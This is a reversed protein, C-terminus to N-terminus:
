KFIARFFHQFFCQASFFERAALSSFFGRWADGLSLGAFVASLFQKNKRPLNGMHYERGLLRIFEAISRLKDAECSRSLQLPGDSTIALLPEEVYVFKGSCERLIRIYFDIDSVWIFCSDFVTTLTHDFALVSPAGIFNGYVLRSPTDHLSQIQDFSAKHQRIITGQASMATCACFVVQAHKALIPESMQALSYESLFWDDHHLIKKVIGRGKSLAANWNLIPGLRTNNRYYRISAIEVFEQAIKEIVDSRSDDTVVIEFHCNKQQLTSEVARKFAEPQEYAPICVSVLNTNMM